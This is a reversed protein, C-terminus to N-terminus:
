ARRPASSVIPREDAREEEGGSAIRMRMRLRDYYGSAHGKQRRERRAEACCVGFFFVSSPLARRAGDAPASRPAITSGVANLAREIPGATMPPRTDLM